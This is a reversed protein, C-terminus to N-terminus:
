LTRLINSDVWTVGQIGGTYGKYVRQIGGTYGQIVRNVWTYGPSCIYVKTYRQIDRNVRTYGPMGM